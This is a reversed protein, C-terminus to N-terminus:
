RRPELAGPVPPPAPADADPAKYYRSYDSEATAQAGNLVVGLVRDRGIADLARTVAAYPTQNARVVLLTGDVLSGLLNADALFGVPPTDVIVWEFRATAEELIRRMRTSSLGGMPDPVPKGAPLLTLTQTLRLAALQTDEGAALGENLGTVNPVKFVEHLSPRRLDADILLVQRRYSESLTLALNVATFTKGDGANASTVLLAKVGNVLQAHHLTAALRRFPEAIHSAPGVVLKESMDADFGRFLAMPEGPLMTDAESPPPEAAAAPPLVPPPLAPAPPPLMAPREEGEFSWPSVFTDAAPPRIDPRTADNQGSEAARRLAEDIRGMM